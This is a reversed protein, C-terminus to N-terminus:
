IRIEQFRRKVNRWKQVKLASQRIKDTEKKDSKTLDIVQVKLTRLLISGRAQDLFQMMGTTLARLGSDADGSITITRLGGMMVGSKM